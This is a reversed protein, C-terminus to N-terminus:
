ARDAEGAVSATTRELLEVVLDTTRASQARLAPLTRRLHEVLDDRNAVIHDIAACLAAIDLKRIDFAYRDLGLQEMFGLAKHEYYICVGPTLGTNGFIAPHYRSAIHVDAMAFVRRQEDSDLGPDVVEWSVEDSLKRGIKELFPVDSHAAGYLQPLMLFHCGTGRSLHEMLAVMVREYEARKADADADGPYGYDNLSTAVLLRDCLGSHKGAFFAERDDPEVQSQIAADATVHVRVDGGLLDTVYDASIQERICLLDFKRYLRRRMPNLARTEFPGASPAYLALPKDYVTALWVFFWHVVEHNVYIDGFYPGGPASIVLDASEYADVVEAPVAGLLVRPAPLHLRLAAGYLLLGLGHLPSMIIPLDRVQERFELRLNRDRFQYLLTFEVDGLRSQLASLMARMAAEDGRNEGHQNVILVRKSHRV